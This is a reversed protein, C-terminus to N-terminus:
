ERSRVERQTLSHSIVRELVGELGELTVPKSLFDDMGVDFCQEKDGKMVNATLVVIPVHSNEYPTLPSADPSIEEKEERKVGLAERKRIERTAEYGDMDSMQCDMLIADYALRSQAEVAELGNGVVDVRYGLKELMKVAVKQNVANDEALLIRIKQRVTEEQLTHKTIFAHPTLRLIKRSRLERRV